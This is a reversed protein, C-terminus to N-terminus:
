NLAAISKLIPRVGTLEGLCSLERLLYQFQVNLLLFGVVVDPLLAPRKRGANVVDQSFHFGVDGSYDLVTIFLFLRWSKLRCADATIAHALVGSLHRCLTVHTARGMLKPIVSVQGLHRLTGRHRRRPTVVPTDDPAVSVQTSTYPDDVVRMNQLNTVEEVVHDSTRM